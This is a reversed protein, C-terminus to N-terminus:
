PEFDQVNTWYTHNIAPRVQEVNDGSVIHDIKTGAHTGFSAGKPREYRSKKGTNDNDVFINGFVPHNAQKEVYRVIDRFTIERGEEETIYDATIRWKKRTDYPLRAVILKLCEPNEIKSM